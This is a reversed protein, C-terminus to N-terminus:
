VITSPVPRGSVGLTVTATGVTDVAGGVAGPTIIVDFTWRTGVGSQPELVAEEVEGENDFLHRSLSNGAAAWDQAYELELTWEASAPFTFKASPKLGKFTVLSASPTLIASAVAAAFDDTGLSLVMDKLVIPQVAIEAM